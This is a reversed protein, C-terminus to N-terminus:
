NITNIYHFWFIFVCVIHFLINACIPTMLAHVCFKPQFCCLRKSSHSICPLIINLHVKPFCLITRERSAWSKLFLVVIWVATTILCHLYMDWNNHVVNKRWEECQLPSNWWNKSCETVCQATCHLAIALRHEENACLPLSWSTASPMKSLMQPCVSLTPNWVDFIPMLSLSLYSPSFTIEFSRQSILDLSKVRHSTKWYPNCFLEWMMLLKMSFLWWSIAAM